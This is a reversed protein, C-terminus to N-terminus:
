LLNIKSTPPHLQPKLRYPIGGADADVAELMELVEEEDEEVEVIGADRIDVLENKEPEGWESETADGVDLEEGLGSAEAEDRLV